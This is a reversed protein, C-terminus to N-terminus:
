GRGAKKPLESFAEWVSEPRIDEMCRFHGKPCSTRGHIHCPRCSLDVGLARSNEGRPGFGLAPSTSGFLAVVPTGVAEAMHLLGSDNTILGKCHSLLAAVLMHDTRGGLDLAQSGAAAAVKSTLGAEAAHGLVLVRFNKALKAAVIEFYKAPWRKTAWAAGPAIAMVERGGELRALLECARQDAEAPPLVEPIAPSGPGLARDLVDQYHELRSRINNLFNRKVMGARRAFDQKRIRFRSHGCALSIASSRLNGQLDLVAEPEFKRIRAAERAWGRTSSWVEGIGPFMGALGAYVDKTLFAVHAGPVRSRLAGAIGSALVVDGFSSLRIVM